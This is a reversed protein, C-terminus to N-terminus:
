PLAQFLQLDICTSDTMREGYHQSGPLYCQHIHIEMCGPLHNGFLGLSCCSMCNFLNKGVSGQKDAIQFSTLLLPAYYDGNISLVIDFLASLLFRVM